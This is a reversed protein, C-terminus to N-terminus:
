VNAFLAINAAEQFNWQMTGNNSLETKNRDIFVPSHLVSGSIIPDIRM